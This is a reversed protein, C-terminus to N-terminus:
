RGSVKAIAAIERELDEVESRDRCMIFDIRVRHEGGAPLAIVRGAEAEVPKPNPYNTGPELGTVYGERLGRCCKWLTFCPLERRSFRLAVGRDGARNKLLVATRDDKAALLELFYVQEAFGPTPGEYVDFSALGERARDDRPQNSRIPAVFRAGAELLPSGLNWHYLLELDAPQDGINEVRDEVSFRNAGPTFELTSRLRLAGGFLRSEDVEGVIRVGRPPEEDFEVALRHAPLNAIRGHLPTITARGSGDTTAFPAGNSDLGCRALLEDFGRLWGIGGEDALNVFSPHVPGDKVPSDWGLRTDGFRGSWLGMGRTPILTLEFPETFVRVVEVGHRRGGRLIARDVRWPADFELGLGAPDLSADEVFVDHDRNVWEIRIM